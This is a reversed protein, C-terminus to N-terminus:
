VLYARLELLGCLSSGAFIFHRRMLGAFLIKSFDTLYDKITNVAVDSCFYIDILPFIRM